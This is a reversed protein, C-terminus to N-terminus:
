TKLAVVLTGPAKVLSEGPKTVVVDASLECRLRASSRGTREELRVTIRGNDFTLTEGVRMNRTLVRKNSM